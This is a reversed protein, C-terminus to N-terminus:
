GLETRAKEISQLARRYGKNDAQAARAISLADIARDASIRAHAATLQEVQALTYGRIADLSHGSEVLGAVATAWSLKRRSRPGRRLPASEFLIRNARRMAGFLEGIADESLGNVWGIDQESLQALLECLDATWVVFEASEPDAGDAPMRAYLRLFAPLEAMTVGRVVVARGGITLHEPTAFLLDLEDAPTM